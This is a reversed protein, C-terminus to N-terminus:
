EAFRQELVKETEISDFRFAGSEKNSANEQRSGTEVESSFARARVRFMTALGAAAFGLTKFPANRCFPSTAVEYQRRLPTRSKNL